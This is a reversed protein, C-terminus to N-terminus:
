CNLWNRIIRRGRLMRIDACNVITDIGERAVLARIAPLDTIDLEDVDTFLWDQKRTPMAIAPSFQNKAFGQSFYNEEAAPGSIISQLSRGLQGNAGTVLVKM